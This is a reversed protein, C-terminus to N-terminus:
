GDYMLYAVNHGLTIYLKSSIEMTWTTIKTHHIWIEDSARIALVIENNIPNLLSGKWILNLNLYVISVSFSFWIQHRRWVNAAVQPCTISFLSCQVPKGEFQHFYSVLPPTTLHRRKRLSSIKCFTTWLTGLPNKWDWGGWGFKREIGDDWAIKPIGCGSDIRLEWNRIEGENQKLIRSGPRWILCIASSLFGRHPARQEPNTLLAALEDCLESLLPQWLFGPLINFIDVSPPWCFLNM